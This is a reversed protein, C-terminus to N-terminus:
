SPPNNGTFGPQMAQYIEFVAIPLGIGMTNDQLTLHFPGACELIYPTLPGGMSIADFIIVPGSRITIEGSDLLQVTLSVRSIALWSNGQPDEFTQGSLDPVDLEYPNAGTWDGTDYVNLINQVSQNPVLRHDQYGRPTAFIQFVLPTENPNYVEVTSFGSETAVGTGQVYYNWVGGSERAYLPLNAIPFYFEQGSINLTVRNKPGVINSLGIPSTNGM